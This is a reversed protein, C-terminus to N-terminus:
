NSEREWLRGIPVVHCHYCASKQGDQNYWHHQAGVGECDKGKDAVGLNILFWPLHTRLWTRWAYPHGRDMM